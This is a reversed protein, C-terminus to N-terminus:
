CSVSVGSGLAQRLFICGVASISNSQLSLSRLAKMNKFFSTMNALGTDDIQNSQLYLTNLYQTNNWRSLLLVVVSSNNFLNHFYVTELSSPLASALFSASTSNINGINGLYLYSLNNWTSLLAFFDRIASTELPIGYIQFFYIDLQRMAPFLSTFTTANLYCYSNGCTYGGSSLFSQPSGCLTNGLVAYAIPNQLLYENYLTCNRIIQAPTTPPVAPTSGPMSATTPLTTTSTLHPLGPNIPTSTNTVPANPSAVGSTSGPMSATTPLTTTSTLHPPGPNILTSTNTVPANPSAVGSTSGPISTTTLLTTTTRVTLPARTSVPDTSSRTNSTTVEPSPPNISHPALTTLMEQLCGVVSGEANLSTCHYPRNIMWRIADSRNFTHTNDACCAVDVAHGELTGGYFKCYNYAQETIAGASTKISVNVMQELYPSLSLGQNNFTNALYGGCAEELFAHPQAPKDDYFHKTVAWSVTATIATLSVVSATIAAAKCWVKKSKYWAKKESSTPTPHSVPPVVPEPLGFEEFIDVHPFSMEHSSAVVGMEINQEHAEGDLHTFEYQAKGAGYGHQSLFLAIFLLFYSSLKILSKM